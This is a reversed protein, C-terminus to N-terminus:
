AAPSTRPTRASSSSSSRARSSSSSARRRRHRVPRAAPLHELRPRPQLPRHRGRAPGTEFSVLKEKHRGRGRVLFVKSPVLQAWRVEEARGTGAGQLRHRPLRRLRRAPRADLGQLHRLAPRLGAEM